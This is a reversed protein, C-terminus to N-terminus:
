FLITTYNSFHQANVKNGPGLYTHYLPLTFARKVSLIKTGLKNWQMNSFWQIFFM